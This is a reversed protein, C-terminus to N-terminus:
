RNHSLIKVPFLHSYDTCQKPFSSTIKWTKFMEAENRIGEKPHQSLRHEIILNSSV